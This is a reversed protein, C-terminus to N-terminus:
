GDQAETEQETLGVYGSAKCMKEYAHIMARLWPMSDIETDDRIAQFLTADIHSAVAYAESRTITCENM